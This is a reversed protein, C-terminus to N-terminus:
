RGLIKRLSEQIRIRDELPLASLSVTPYEAIGRKTKIFLTLDSLKGFISNEFQANKLIAVPFEISNFENKGFGIAKYYRLVIKNKEDIYEIYQYDAVLFFIFWISFVGIAGFAYIILDLMLLGLAAIAIVGSVMFFIRKLRTTAKRNTIKM